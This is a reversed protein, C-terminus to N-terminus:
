SDMFAMESAQRTKHVRSMLPTCISLVLQQKNGGDEKYRKLFCKGGEDTHKNNYEQVLTELRDFMEPGNSPGKNEILWKEYMNNVDRLSPCIKRDALLMLTVPDKMLQTEHHHFAESASMGQEFYSAFKDKTAPLISCFSTLHFCDVSHNHNWWLEIECLESVKRNTHIRIAMKSDCDTKKDRTKSLLHLDSGENAINEKHIGHRKEKRKKAAEKEAEQKKTLKKRKCQCIYWRAYVVKVGKRKYGGQANYKINSSAAFQHLWQDVEEKSTVNGVSLKVYFSTQPAGTFCESPLEQYDLCKYSYGSPLVQKAPQPIQSNTSVEPDTADKAYSHDDHIDQSLAHSPNNVSTKSATSEKRSVQKKTRKKPSEFDSDSDSQPQQVKEKATKSPPNNIKGTKLRTASANSSCLGEDKPQEPESSLASLTDRAIDLILSFRFDNMQKQTFDLPRGEAIHQAWKIVFVGCDVSTTQQALESSPICYFEWGNWDPSLQHYMAMCELFNMFRSFATQAGIGNFMSDLYVMRKEPLHIVVLCWHDGHLVTCLIIDATLISGYLEGYTCKSFVDMSLKTMNSYVDSNVTQINKTAAQSHQEIMLFVQNIIFNSLKSDTVKLEVPLLRLVDSPEWGKVRPHNPVQVGAM